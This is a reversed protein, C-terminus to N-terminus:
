GPLQGLGIGGGRPAARKRMKPKGLKWVVQVQEGEIVRVVESASGYGDPQGRLYIRNEGAPARIRFTGDARVPAVECSGTPGRAPGYM